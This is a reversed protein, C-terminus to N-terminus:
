ESQKHLKQAVSKRETLMTRIDETHVRAREHILADKLVENTTRTVEAYSLGVALDALNGWRVGKVAM